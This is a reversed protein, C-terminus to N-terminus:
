IFPKCLALSHDVGCRVKFVKAGISTKFPFFQDKTHGLGLCGLKNRGWMYLDDDSNIAAMHSIGCAISTVRCDPNLENKGFLTPPILTPKKVYDVSPGLGLIGYGWVFVDGYESFNPLIFERVVGLAVSM